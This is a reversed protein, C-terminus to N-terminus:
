VMSMHNNKLISVTVKVELLSPYSEPVILYPYTGDLPSYEHCAKIVIKGKFFNIKKGM